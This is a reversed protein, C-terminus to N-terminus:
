SNEFNMFKLSASSLPCLASGAPGIRKLIPCFISKNYHNQSLCRKRFRDGASRFICNELNTLKRGLFDHTTDFHESQRALLDRSISIAIAKFVVSSVCAFRNDGLFTEIIIKMCRLKHRSLSQAAINNLKGLTIRCHFGNRFRNMNSKVVPSFRVFRDTFLMLKPTSVGNKSIKLQPPLLFPHSPPTEQYSTVPLYSPAFIFDNSIPRIM